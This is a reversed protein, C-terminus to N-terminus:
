TVLDSPITDRNKHISIDGENLTKVFTGMRKACKTTSVTFADVNTQVVMWTDVDIPNSGGLKASLYKADM